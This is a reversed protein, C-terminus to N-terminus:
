GNMIESICDLINQYCGGCGTTCSTADQVHKFADLLNSFNNTGLMADEIDRYTVGICHCVEYNEDNQAM